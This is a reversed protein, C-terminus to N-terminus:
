KRQFALHSPITGATFQDVVSGSRDLVVVSGATSFPQEIDLRGLYLRADRADYAVASLMQLSTDAPVDMTAALTNADTNFRFVLDSGSSIAYLEEATPAFHAVQTFNASGLQVDLNLMSRVSLTAPDMFAVAGNTRDIVNFDDDLITEGTCVVVLDEEDDVIVFYPSDCGPSASQVVEQSALDIASIMGTTSAVYARDDHVAITQAGAAVEIAPGIEQAELDIIALSDPTEDVFDNLTVLVTESGGAAAYRTPMGFTYDAMAVYNTTDFVTVRGTNGANVVAYLHEDAWTFSNLFANVPASQTAGSTLDRILLTGNSQGFIGSNGVVISEAVPESPEDEGGLLDCGALTMAVGLAALVFLYRTRQMHMISTM